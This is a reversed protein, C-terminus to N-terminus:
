EWCIEIEGFKDGGVWYKRLVSPLVLCELDGGEKFKVGNEILAVILRPVAAATGNLTHAYPLPGTAASDERPHRHRIHLRRSQYDTCNSASSIEGWAGRGPMWAEIDYKRHASAGLEESPMDLVRFPIGLGAYLEIQLERLYELEHDSAKDVNVESGTHKIAEGTTVSFLEVKTFQHVRYLGRTDKGRAGAEARFAHGVAVTRYPLTQPNYLAQAHMAALPIESTGALVLGAEGSEHKSQVSYMQEPIRVEADEDGKVDGDRPIFGCRDAADRRVVDPAIIPEFGRRVAVEMAYAILAVELLAGGGRLYAFGAGSSVVGADRDFFKMGPLDNLENHDRKNDAPIPEPGHTSIARANAEPGLPVNPHSTNPIRLGYALLSSELRSLEREHAHVSDRLARAKRLANEKDEPTAAVRVSDGIHSQRARLEDASRTTTKWANLDRQLADFTREPLNVNRDKANIAQSPHVLYEYNLKPPPLIGSSTSRRPPAPKTSYYRSLLKRTASSSRLSFTM